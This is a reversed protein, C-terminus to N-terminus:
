GDVVSIRLRRTRPGDCDVFLISQWTGLALDGDVVPITASEGLLTARVHADANDDIVNHGYEEDRPVLRELAREVDSLLRSEHENVIVGATTHPVYVTCIGDDTEAPITEAVDSTVDVIDVRESTRVEVIM